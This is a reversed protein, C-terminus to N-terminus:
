NAVGLEQQIDPPLQELFGAREEPEALALATDFAALARQRDHLENLYIAGLQMQGRARTQPFEATRRQIAQMAYPIDGTRWALVVAANLLDYDSIGAALAAKVAALAKADEGDRALLLVELSRVSRADPQLRKARELHAWAAEREGMTARGRAANAIIAVVNPRSALVSEWIWTANEWDGWKALEDAVMPTIKRYHPNLAIGERVLQLMEQRAPAHAPDDPNGAASISIALKAAYTLKFEAEAARQSIFLALGLCAVTAAMAARAIGPSWRMSGALWRHVLGLRADSAALGGLCLAFLAGTAAMRWPFGISSVILLVLLSTLFVARVPREADGAGDAGPGWSRAAAFALYGLLLLLFIWGALGYEAILQLFENHVYYDTELQSGPEQYLAIEKEWAGAGVGTLPRAQIARAAARWMVMRIGLSPDAPGISQTRGIGRQLGSAGREEELIKPNTSPLAGLALVTGVLVASALLRLPLDWGSWALQGRCRWAVLPLVVLLQLWLALLAARTGTMLIAAVVLGISAALGAVTAGQRARALLLWAFPLTSVAFEAFFNRNIFTSAPNPGQPFLDFGVWFQLAAWLSAVVAGAHIGWALWPLRERTLAQLAVWALLGFVFWRVAEVAALYTHSWAMSGLAYAMLLLPLWLVAHWRLPQRRDRVHLLLLLAAFLTGFSVVISKLTDQLMLEHPVGLAPAVFMMAALMAAAWGGGSPEPPLATAGSAGAAAAAPAAAVAPAPAPRRRRGM